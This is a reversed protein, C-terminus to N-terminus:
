RRSGVTRAVWSLLLGTLLPFLLVPLITISRFSVALTLLIAVVSISGARSLDSIILDFEDVRSRLNGHIGWWLGKQDAVEQTIKNLEQYLDRLSALNSIGENTRVIMGMVDGDANTHFQDINAYYELLRDLRDSAEEDEEETLQEEDLADLDLLFPNLEIEWEEIEEQFERLLSHPVLTYGYRDLFEKPHRYDVSRVSALAEIRRAVEEVGQLLAASDESQMLISFYGGDGVADELENSWRVSASHQPLLRKLNTDLGIHRFSLYAPVCLVLTIALWLLPRRHSASAIFSWIRNM